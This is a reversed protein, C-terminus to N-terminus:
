LWGYGAGFIVALLAAIGWIVAVARAQKRPNGLDHVWFAVAFFWLYGFL